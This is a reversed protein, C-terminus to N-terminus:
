SYPHFNGAVVCHWDGTVAPGLEVLFAPVGHRISFFHSLVLRPHIKINYNYYEFPKLFNSVSCKYYKRPIKQLSFFIDDWIFCLLFLCFLALCFSGRLSNIHKM